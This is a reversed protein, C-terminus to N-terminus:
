PRTISFVGGGTTADRAYLIIHKPNVVQGTIIPANLTAGVPWGNPQKVDWLDAWDRNGRDVIQGTADVALVVGDITTAWVAPGAPPRTPISVPPEPPKPAPPYYIRRAEEITATHDALWAEDFSQWTGRNPYQDMLDYKRNTYSRHHLWHGNARGVNQWGCRFVIIASVVHMVRRMGGTIPESGSTDVCLGVLRRNGGSGATQPWSTLDHRTIQGACAKQAATLNGVGAHWCQGGTRGILLKSSRAVMMPYDISKLLARCLAESQAGTRGASAATYHWLGGGPDFDNYSSGGTSPDVPVDEIGAPNLGFKPFDARMIAAWDATRYANM